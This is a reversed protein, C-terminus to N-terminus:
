ATSLPDTEQHPALRPLDVSMTRPTAHFIASDIAHMLNLYPYAFIEPPYSGDEAKRHSQELAWQRVENMKEIIEQDTIPM